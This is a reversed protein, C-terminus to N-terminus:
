GSGVGAIARSSVQWWALAVGGGVYLAIAVLAPAFPGVHMYSPLIQAGFLHAGVTVVASQLDLQGIARATAGTAERGVAYFINGILLYFAAWMAIANRRRTALSSLGLPVAAYAAAGLAGTALAKAIAPLARVLDDTSEVMGCRFGALLVLPAAMVGAQILFLGGLKGLVYDIPRVPRAFYFTFAGVQQDAAITGSAVTLGVLFGAYCFWRVSMSLWGDLPDGEVLFAMRRGGGAGPFFHTVYILAGFVVMAIVAFGLPMKYRWWTKWAYSVQNRVIVRWRTSQPQRTGLYRKYGLDHIAGTSV